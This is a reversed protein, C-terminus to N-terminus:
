ELVSSVGTIRSFDYDYEYSTDVESNAALGVIMVISFIYIFISLVLSIVYAILFNKSKRKLMVVEPQANPNVFPTDVRCVPCTPIYAEMRFGCNPCNKKNKESSSIVLYVIAVISFLGSLVGWMTANDMKLSKAHNYVALGLFVQALIIGAIFILIGILVLMVIAIEM